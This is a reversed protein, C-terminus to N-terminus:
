IGMNDYMNPDQYINKNDVPGNVIACATTMLTGAVSAANELAVRTVKAPDVIGIEMLDDCFTGTAVNYGSNISTQSKVAQLISDIKAQEEGNNMLLTRLPAELAKKLIQSGQDDTDIATIARLLLVGGGPVIGEEVAARTAQLADDIRDKKEKMEVETPAGVTIVAVGGILRAMREQLKEIEVPALSKNELQQKIAVVQRQIDEEFGNGEIITTDNKTIIVKKATGMYSEPFHEDDKPYPVGRAQSLFTAGTALAIDELAQTRREGFEPAKIACARLLGKIKNIVLLALAEGEIDDAIFLIPRGMRNALTCPVEIDAISSLKKDTVVILPEDLVVNMKTQDTVFYPSSYGRKFQMGEVINLSTESGRGDEVYVMGDRGVKQMAESILTGIGQDSNASLTAVNALQTPSTVKLANKDIFDIVKSVAADIQRKVRIPNFQKDQIGAQVAQSFIANALVTSTTTGDGALTSTKLAAEKVIQAGINEFPDSLFVEKAVSVGDKTSTPLGYPTQLIVNRGSPGLTAAVANTLKEVGNKLDDIVSDNSGQDTTFKILKVPTQPSNM